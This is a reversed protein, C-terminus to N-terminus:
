LSSIRTRTGTSSSRNTNRLGSASYIILVAAREPKSLRTQLCYLMLLRVSFKKYKPTNLNPEKSGATGVASGDGSTALSSTECATANGQLPQLVVSGLPM